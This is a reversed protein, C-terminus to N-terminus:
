VVKKLVEDFVELMRVVGSLKKKNEIVPLLVLNNYIMLYAAKEILDDPEVFFKVPIMIDGVPRSVLAKSENGFLSEWIVSPDSEGKEQIDTISKLLAPEIGKLIEELTLLGLLNYKEDFVLMALPQPYKKADLFSVKIIKIAQQITFWYPIHPYEFVDVMLDKVRKSSSM